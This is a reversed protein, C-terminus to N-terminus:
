YQQLFFAYKQVGRGNKLKKLAKCAATQLKKAIVDM